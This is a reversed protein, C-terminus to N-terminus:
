KKYRVEGEAKKSTKRRRKATTAKSQLEFAKAKTIELMEWKQKWHQLQPKLLPSGPLLQNILAYHWTLLWVTLQGNCASPRVYHPHTSTKQETSRRSMAAPSSRQDFINHTAARFLGAAKWPCIRLKSLALTLLVRKPCVCVCVCVCVGPCFFFCSLSGWFSWRQSFTKLLQTAAPHGHKIKLSDGAVKLEDSLFEVQIFLAPLTKFRSAKLHLSNVWHYARTERKLGLIEELVLDATTRLSCLEDPHVDQLTSIIRWNLM